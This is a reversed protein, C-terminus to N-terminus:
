RCVPGKYIDNQCEGKQYCYDPNTKCPGVCQWQGNAIEATYNAFGSCNLYPELGTINEIQPKPVSVNKLEVTKYGFAESIMNINSTNTLIETLVEELQTNLFQIKNEDNPYTYEVESDAVVSGSSLKTVKVTKYAQPEAQKCLVELQKELKKILDQSQSSELDEFEALYDTDIKLSFSAKRTPISGTDINVTTENQGLSCQHGFVYDQCQCQCKGTTVNFTCNGGNCQCGTCQHTTSPM